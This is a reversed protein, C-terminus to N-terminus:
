RDALQGVGGGHALRNRGGRPQRSQRCVARASVAGHRERRRATGAPLGEAIRRACREMGAPAHAGGGHQAQHDIRRRALHAVDVADPFGRRSPQRAADSREPWDAEPRATVKVSAKKAAGAKDRVDLGLTDNAGRSALATALAGSDAVAADNAKLIVDGAQLGAAAAPGGAGVAVVIAGPVDAVDITTLGISPRLFQVPRDLLAVADAITESRDLSLEFVDPDASGASLLSIVVRNRNLASPVTVSAVGQADFARALRTSLNRRTPASLDATSGIARKNNDFSLWDATLQSGRLTQDVRDAPPAFLSVSRVPELAREIASRLDTSVGTQVTASVIAFAPRMAGTVETRQGARTDVRRAYRGFASRMEVVHEGECLQGTFPAPGREQGDVFVVTNPQTSTAVVTGVASELKVPDLVVDQLQTIDVRREAAVSCPRRFEVRHAGASLEAAVLVASLANMQVGAAAARPAYDAPPPGALTKGKSIGDIVIEVDAPSTVISLVASSRTLELHAESTTGAAATVTATGTRYGLQKAQLTHEGVLVPITANGKVAIGDITAEATPPAITLKLMTITSKQAEEFIAVVRPSVQGPLTRSPETKLLAVFDERAGSEDGVGFRARARMEYADALTKRTDESRRSTMTAIARDLPPIVQEYELGEFHRRAEAMQGQVDALENQAGAFAPCALVGILLISARLLTSPGRM